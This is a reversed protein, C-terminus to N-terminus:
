LIKAPNGYVTCGPKVNRIIFAGAGVTSCDGVKKHPNLISGTHMTVHNGIQSYGGLFSYTNLHCMNGICADHGVAVFPQFTVFDGVHADCSIRAYQLVICGIGMTVNQSIHADRHILNIFSGGKALILDVYKQKYKVDGLACIFVDDSLIEYNEVSGIIPPYGWLGDLADIKDDLFGKIVFDSNYGLSEKAAEFIERGFGRAGIIILQKM